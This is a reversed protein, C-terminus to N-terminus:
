RMKKLIVIHEGTMTASLQGIVNSPSNKHPMRKNPIRREFTGVLVYGFQAFFEATILNLPIQINKVTRNGVVYCVYGGKKVLPSVNKISHWYDVLFSYVESHRKSDIDNIKSLEKRASRIEIEVSTKKRGGMLRKDVQHADEVGLWQNSLRSFQGYAVTTFSDGYPPSTVIIDVERKFVGAPIGECTDFGHVESYTNVNVDTHFDRYGDLNRKLKGLYLVFPNVDHNDIKEQEIRYLKFEGKRTYSSERVTESFPVLFFDLMDDPSAREIIEKLLSLEKQVKQSFWYDINKFNPCSPRPNPERKVASFIKRAANELKSIDYSATKSRSLLRALPNLDTGISNIGTLRSEVLSTGSGCYPDFLISANQGYEKILKRAIQPIMMAPYSHYGHTYEKTNATAFDWSNNLEPELLDLSRQM